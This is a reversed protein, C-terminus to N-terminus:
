YKVQIGRYYVQEKYDKRLPYGEWDAPLLIRRLDPHQNFRIGFLDYVEREQWDATKWISTLSDVVPNKKDLKVKIMLHINKPLSYLNYIVELEELEAGNDMGTICSLSDFYLEPHSHLYAMVELLFSPAVEMGVPNANEILHIVAEPLQDDLLRKIEAATM